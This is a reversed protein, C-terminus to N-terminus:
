ATTEVAKLHADLEPAINVFGPAFPEIENRDVRRELADLFAPVNEIKLDGFDAYNYDWWRSKLLCEVTAEDFRYRIVKAPVGGVIAYPPVDKVVVSGAAVIAGHGVTVGAKLLVGQAIWVDNGIQVPDERNVQFDPVPLVKGFEKEAFRCTYERFAFVHTSIRDVPHDIGMVHVDNAISCYRGVRTWVPLKSTRCYSFAGMQLFNGRPMTSYREAIVETEIQVDQGLKYGGTVKLPHRLFLRNTKFFAEARHDYKFRYPYNM